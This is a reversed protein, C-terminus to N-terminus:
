TKADTVPHSGARTGRRLVGDDGRLDLGGRARGMEIKGVWWMVKTFVTVGSVMKVSAPEFGTLGCSLAKSGAEYALGGVCSTKFARQAKAWYVLEEGGM